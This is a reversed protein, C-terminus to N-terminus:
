FAAKIKKLEEARAADRTALYTPGGELCYPLSIGTKRALKTIRKQQLDTIKVLYPFRLSLFKRFGIDTFRHLHPHNWEECHAHNFNNEMTGMMIKVIKPIIFENPVHAVLVGRESMNDAIIDLATAPTILHEFVDSCVAIDFKQPAVYGAQDLNHVDLSVGEKDFSDKYTDTGDVAHKKLGSPLHALLVPDGAGYEIVSKIDSIQPILSAYISRWGSLGKSRFVEANYQAQNATM